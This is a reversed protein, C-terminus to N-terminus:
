AQLRGDRVMVPPRRRRDRESQLDPTCDWSAWVEGARQYEAYAADNQFWVRSLAGLCAHYREVWPLRGAGRGKVHAVAGGAVRDCFRQYADPQKLLRHWCEDVAGMPMVFENADSSSAALALFRGLEREAMDSVVGHTTM